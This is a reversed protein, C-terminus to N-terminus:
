GHKEEMKEILRKIVSDFTEEKIIKMKKLKKYTEESIKITKEKIMNVM